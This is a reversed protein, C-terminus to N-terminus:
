WAPGYAVCRCGESANRLPEMRPVEPQPAECSLTKPSPNFPDPLAPDWPCIRAICKQPFNDNLNKDLERLQEQIEAIGEVIDQTRQTQNQLNKLRDTLPWFRSM